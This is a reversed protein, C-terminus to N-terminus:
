RAMLSGLEQSPANRAVYQKKYKFTESRKASLSFSILVTLLCRMSISQIHLLISVVLDLEKEHRVLTM